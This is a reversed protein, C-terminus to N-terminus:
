YNQTKLVIMVEALKETVDREEQRINIKELKEFITTNNIM